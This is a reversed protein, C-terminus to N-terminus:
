KVRTRDSIMQDQLKGWYYMDAIDLNILSFFQPYKELACNSKEESLSKKILYGFSREFLGYAFDEPVGGDGKEYIEVKEGCSLTKLSTSFPSPHTHLNLFLTQVYYTGIFKPKATTVALGKNIATQSEAKFEARSEAQSKAGQILLYFFLSLTFYLFPTVKKKM